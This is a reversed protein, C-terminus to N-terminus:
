ETSPRPLLSRYYDLLCSRVYSQEFRSVISDRSRAAMAATADRDEVMRTMAALLADTDHTPIILGNDGDTIIERSGNIDTVISPLGMAGAELVVNPFGERYSPFALADAAALWPRVDAQQGPTLISPHREIETITEPKLPDLDEEQRGVLILRTEPHKRNLRCFADILENIGKDGVLRGVFVFTFTNPDRLEAVQQQIDPADPNFRDCDVGRVNGHGLVRLPKRTIKYALLDSKVGEGEPHIHTACACTVRGVAILIKKTLGHSTPFVLGTITHLRVPVRCIWAATMSLLGAKPTMSHVMYPKERRFVKILRLLSKLDKLPSIHRQMEVPIFRAGNATVKASEPGDSSVAVVDLGLTQFDRIMPTFFGLSQAVTCSRILKM